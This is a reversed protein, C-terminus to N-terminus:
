PKVELEEGTLVFYLNQLQHVYNIRALFCDPGMLHCEYDTDKAIVFVDWLATYFESEDNQSKYFGMKVLLDETIPIPELLDWEDRVDFMYRAFEETFIGNCEYSGGYDICNGIRLENPKIM